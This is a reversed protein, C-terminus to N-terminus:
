YHEMERCIPVGIRAQRGPAPLFPGQNFSVSRPQEKEATSRKTGVPETCCSRASGSVAPDSVPLFLLRCGRQTTTAWPGARGPVHQTEPSATGRRGRYGYGPPDSSM